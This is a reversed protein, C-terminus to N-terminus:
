DGTDDRLTSSGEGDSLTVRLLKCAEGGWRGNRLLRRGYRKCFGGASTPALAAALWACPRGGGGARGWHSGWMSPGVICRAVRSLGLSVLLGALLVLRACGSGLSSSVAVSGASQWRCQVGRLDWSTM